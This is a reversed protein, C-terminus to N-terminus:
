GQAQGGIVLKKIRLTPIGDSVPVGQGEKGCTGISWGQDTGVKDILTLTEPGNGLLTAGRVLTKKGDRVHFGEEVEFVFDGTATNVQGGGMRTVLLGNTLSQVIESPDDPGPAIYTNSMRPIPPHAYSERRGHGNSARGAKRASLRDFMYDRLVGGDVLKSAEAPVGEDDWYFSGRASPLTPNDYVTVKPNAVVKGVKGVYHPSTGEWVADAELSHGVAEHILTGGAEAAIVVPMEGVPAPPASLKDHARQCVRRALDEVVTGDFIEYGQLGGLSEYGTQLDKNREVTVTVSLVVYTRRESFFEGNSNLYATKKRKEGYNITVQRVHPGSRAALYARKLLEVKAEVPIESPKKVVQHAMFVPRKLPMPLLEALGPSLQQRLLSLRDKILPSKPLSLPDPLDAHGFRIEHGHFFRLGAGSQRAHSVTEIKEEEWKLSLSESDELYLDSFDGHSLYPQYLTLSM